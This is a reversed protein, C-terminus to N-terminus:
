QLDAKSRRRNGAPRWDTVAAYGRKDLENVLATLALFKLDRESMLEPDGDATAKLGSEPHTVTLVRRAPKGNAITTDVDFVVENGLLLGVIRKDLNPPEIPKKVTIAKEDNFGVRFKYETGPQFRDEQETRLAVQIPEHTMEFIVDFLEDGDVPRWAPQVSICTAVFTELPAASLALKTAADSLDNLRLAAEVIAGAFTVRSTEAGVLERTLEFILDARPQGPHRLRAERAMDLTMTVADGVQAAWRERRFGVLRRLAEDEDIPQEDLAM